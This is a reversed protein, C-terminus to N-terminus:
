VDIVSMMKQGSSKVGVGTMRVGVRIYRYDIKVGIRNNTRVGVSMVRDGIKMGIRNHREQMVGAGWRMVGDKSCGEQRMAGARDRMGVEEM